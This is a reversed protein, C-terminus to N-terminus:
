TLIHKYKIHKNVVIEGVIIDSCFVNVKLMVNFKVGRAIYTLCAISHQESLITPSSTTLDGCPHEGAEM